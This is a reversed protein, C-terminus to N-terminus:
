GPNSRNNRQRNAKNSESSKIQPGDAKGSEDAQGQDQKTKPPALNEPVQEAEDNMNTPDEDFPNKEVVPKTKPTTLEDPDLSVRPADVLPKTEPQKVIDIATSKPKPKNFIRENYMSLSHLAHGMPGLKWEHRPNALLHTAVFDISKVMRPSVLEEDSQALILWEMAHGTTQIKRDIDPRNEGRWFWQTSFSGDPNMISWAYRQYNEIYQKAKLYEGDLPEGRKIRQQYAYTLGFLRHTGGCAAGRIPAKLEESILRPINWTQGDSAQWTENLDLYHSFSMLRFTLETNPRCDRMEENLLDRLKFERGQIKLPTELSVKSQALIALLQGPHGQVGVGIEAHPRGNQLTLLTQGNCPQGWLVWGIANVPVGTPGYRRIQTKSNFAVFAHMVEWNTNDRTNQHRQEYIALVQEIKQKLRLLDPTIKAPETDVRPLM